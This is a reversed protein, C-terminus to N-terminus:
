KERRSKIKVQFEFCLQLKPIWIDFEMHRGDLSVFYPPSLNPIKKEREKRKKGTRKKGKRKKRKEIKKRM